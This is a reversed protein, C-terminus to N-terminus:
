LLDYQKLKKRLTGRNLGLIDAALSQNNKTREMVLKLMPAEVEKMVFNNLDSPQEEGLCEFYDELCLTVCESLALNLKKKKKNKKARPAQEAKKTM